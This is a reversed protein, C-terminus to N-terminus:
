RIAPAMWREKWYETLEEDRYDIFVPQADEGRLFEKWNVALPYIYYARKVGQFLINGSPIGLVELAQRALRMKWNPGDGYAYRRIQDEKGALRLAEEFLSFAGSASLHTHTLGQTYGVFKWGRLRNYISSKGFAGMTDVLVLDPSVTRKLIETARGQYRCRFYERVTNGGSLLAVLKAGRLQNYPPVAGLVNATMVHYLKETKKQTSWGIYGDRVGFGIVPDSLALIGMVKGLHDDWVIFRLKRGYGFSVPVSWFSMAHRFIEGELKTEVPRLSPKIKDPNVEFSSAFYKEVRPIPKPNQAEALRKMVVRPEERFGLSWDESISFGFSELRQRLEERLERLRPENSSLTDM